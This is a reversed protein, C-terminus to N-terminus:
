VRERCSARGIEQAEGTIDKGLVIPIEPKRGERTLEGEIIERFSVINRRANPVEIGVAHKGPIPAVIRVSSAALRLAINDQLNVIRSLKVGPAPLIEFMTIVPGKKIGTVEAQINFEKLTEKLTLASNRTADDIIWYEGDPYQNLLGEVPVFYPLRRKPAIPAPATSVHRAANEEAEALARKVDANEDGMELKTVTKDAEKHIEVPIKTSIETPIEAPIEALEELLLQDEIASIGQEKNMKLEENDIKQIPPENDNYLNAAASQTYVDKLKRYKPAPLFGMIKRGPNSKWRTFIKLPEEGPFFFVSRLLVILFGEMATITVALFGTGVRGANILFSSRASLIEFDRIVYLGMAMTFFPLPISALIFLRDPKYRHDALLIAAYILYAPILFALFGYSRIFFHGMGPFFSRGGFLTGIISIGFFLALFTLFLSIRLATIRYNSFPSTFFEKLSM